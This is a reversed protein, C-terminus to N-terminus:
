LPYPTLIGLSRMIYTQGNGAIEDRMPGFTSCGCLVINLKSVNHFVKREGVEFLFYSIDLTNLVLCNLDSRIFHCTVSNRRDFCLTVPAQTAPTFMM